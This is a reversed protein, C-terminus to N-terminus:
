LRPTTVLSVRGSVMDQEKREFEAEMEARQQKLLEHTIRDDEDRQDSLSTKLRQIVCVINVPTLPNAFNRETLLQSKISM